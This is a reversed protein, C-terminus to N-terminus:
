GPIHAEEALSEWTPKWEPLTPGYAAVLTKVETLFVRRVEDNDRLKLRYKRYHANKPAGPRGFINM